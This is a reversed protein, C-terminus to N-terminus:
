ANHAELIDMLDIFLTASNTLNADLSAFESRLAPRMSPPCLVALCEILEASLRAPDQRSALWARSALIDRMLQESAPGDLLDIL